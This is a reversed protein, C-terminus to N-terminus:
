PVASPSHRTRRKQLSTKSPNWWQFAVPEPLISLDLQIDQPAGRGNGPIYLVALRHDAAIAASVPPLKDGGRSEIKLRGEYDPVLKEWSHALLFQALRIMDQTATSNLAEQWTGKFPYLTPGDFHWLPNNGMFQGCAGGLMASWAHQRIQDPRFDHEGEYASEILVFPRVPKRLYNEHLQRPLELGHQYASDVDLWAEDGFTEHGPCEEGHVTMLQRAGGEKLGKAVEQGAWRYAEPPKFDGGIVWIINPLDKFREGVFRAYEHVATPGASKMEQFFGEDGGRSGLYAPFLWVSLGHRAAEEVCRHAFDFYDPNPTFNGGERFPLLGNRAAPAHSSFKHEILNVIISNFGRRARDSLYRERDAAEPQVILSWGADGVVLLPQGGSDLLHRGDQSVRLPFRAGADQAGTQAHIPSITQSALLTVFAPLLFSRRLQSLFHPARM